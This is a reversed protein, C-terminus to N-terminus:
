DLAARDQSAAIEADLEEVQAAVAGLTTGDDKAELEHQTGRLVKLRLRKREVTGAPAPLM